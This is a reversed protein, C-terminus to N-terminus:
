GPSKQCRRIKKRVEHPIVYCSEAGSNREIEEHRNRSDCPSPWLAAPSNPVSRLVIYRQDVPLNVCSRIAEKAKGNCQALPRMLRQSEDSVQSEINDRFNTLFGAYESPDGSFKMLEVKPLSPGQKIAQAITMWTDSQQSQVSSQGEALPSLYNVLPPTTQQPAIM